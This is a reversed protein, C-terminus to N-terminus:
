ANSIVPLWGLKSELSSRFGTRVQIPTKRVYEEAVNRAAQTLTQFHEIIEDLEPIKDRSSKFGYKLNTWVVGDLGKESAWKSIEQTCVGHSNGTSSEWYGISYKINAESIGERRALQSKANDLTESGLYAWLAPSQKVGEVLVLTIRGDSSERAFEIPLLPGDAEWDSALSMQGPNWILSGWGLVAIRM